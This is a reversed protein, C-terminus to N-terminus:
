RVRLVQAVQGHKKKKYKIKEEKMQSWEDHGFTM